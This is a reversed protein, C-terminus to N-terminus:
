PNVCKIPPKAPKAKFRKKATAKKPTEVPLAVLVPEIETEVIEVPRPAAVPPPAIVVAPRPARTIVQEQDNLTGFRPEAAMALVMVAALTASMM